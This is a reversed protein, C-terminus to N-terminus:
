PYPLLNLTEIFRFDRQNKSLLPVRLDIATAAVLADPILLGHSLNYTRLLNVAIDSISDNLKVIELDSLLRNTLRLDSSNYCGVLLEMQTITSIALTSSKSEEDLRNIALEVQRNFDILVDTDVLLYERM